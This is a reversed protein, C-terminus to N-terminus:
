QDKEYNELEEKFWKGWMNRLIIDEGYRESDPTWGLIELQKEPPMKKLARIIGNRREYESTLYDRVFQVFHHFMDNFEFSETEYEKDTLKRAPLPKRKLVKTQYVDNLAKVFLSEQEIFEKITLDQSELNEYDDFRFQIVPKLTNILDDFKKKAEEYVDDYYTGPYEGDEDLEDNMTWISFDEGQGKLYSVRCKLEKACAALNTESMEGKEMNRHFTRPPINYKEDMKITFQNKTIGRLRFMKEFQEKKIKEMRRM